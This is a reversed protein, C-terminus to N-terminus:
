ISLTVKVPYRGWLGQEALLRVPCRELVSRIGFRRPEKGKLAKGCVPSFMVKMVTTTIVASHKTNRDVRFYPTM